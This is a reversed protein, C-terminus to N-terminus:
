QGFLVILREARRSSVQVLQFPDLQIPEWAKVQM